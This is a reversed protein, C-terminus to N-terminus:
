FGPSSFWRGPFFLGCAGKKFLETIAALQNFDPRGFRWYLLCFSFESLVILENLGCQGTDLLVPKLKPPCGTGAMGSSPLIMSMMGSLRDSAKTLCDFRSKLNLGIWKSSLTLM